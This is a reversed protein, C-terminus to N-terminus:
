DRENRKRKFMGHAAKVSKEIGRTLGFVGLIVQFLDWFEPELTSVPWGFM